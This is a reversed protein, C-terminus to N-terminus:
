LPQLFIKHAEIRRRYESTVPFYSLVTLIGFIVIKIRSGLKLSSQIFDHSAFGLATHVFKHFFSATKLARTSIQPGGPISHHLLVTRIAM